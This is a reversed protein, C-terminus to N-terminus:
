YMNSIENIKSFNKVQNVHSLKTGLNSYVIFSNIASIYTYIYAVKAIAFKNVFINYQPNHECIQHNGIILM